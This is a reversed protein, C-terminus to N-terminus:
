NFQIDFYELVYKIGHIASTVVSGILLGLLQEPLVSVSNQIMATLLSLDATRVDLVLFPAAISLLTAALLVRELPFNLYQHVVYGVISIAIQILVFEFGLAM